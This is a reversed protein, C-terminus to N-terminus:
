FMRPIGGRQNKALLGVLSQKEPNLRKGRLKSKIATEDRKEQAAQEEELIELEWESLTKTFARPNNRREERVSQFVASYFCRGAEM